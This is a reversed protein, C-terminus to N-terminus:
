NAVADQTVIFRNGFMCRHIELSERSEDDSFWEVTRGGNTEDEANRHNSHKRKHANKMLM